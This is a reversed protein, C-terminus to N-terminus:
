SAQTQTAEQAKQQVYQGYEKAREKMDHAKRPIQGRAYDLKDAGPPHKGTLYNYMWTLAMIAMLGCGGSFFFGTTVLFVVIGAPVLVPSCLVLIPTSVILAIVTGTLTLASLLLFTAGRMAATLFKVTPHSSRPPDRVLQSLPRSQDSM